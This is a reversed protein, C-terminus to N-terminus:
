EKILGWVKIITGAILTGNYNLDLLAPYDSTKYLYIGDQEAFSYIVSGARASAGTGVKCDYVWIGNKQVWEAAIIKPKATNAGYELFGLPYIWKSNKARPYLQGPPLAIESPAVIRVRLGICNDPLTLTFKADETLTIDTIIQWELEKDQKKALAADMDTKPVYDSDNELYSVKTPMNRQTQIVEDAISNIDDALVDDVGDVKNVWKDELAM